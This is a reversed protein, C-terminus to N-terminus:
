EIVEFGTDKAKDLDSFLKQIQWFDFTETKGSSLRFELHARDENWLTIFGYIANSTYNYHLINGNLIFWLDLEPSLKGHEIIYIMDGLKGYHKSHIPITHKIERNDKIIYLEYSEVFKYSTYIVCYVVSNNENNISTDMYNFNGIHIVDGDLNLLYQNGTDRYELDKRGVIYYPSNMGMKLRDFPTRKLEVRTTSKNIKLLGIPNESNGLEIVALKHNLASYDKVKPYLLRAKALASEWDRDELGGVM